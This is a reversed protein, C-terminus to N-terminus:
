LNSWREILYLLHFLSQAFIHFHYPFPAHTYTHTRSSQHSSPPFASWKRILMMQPSFLSCMTFMSFQWLSWCITPIESFLTVCNVSAKNTRFFVLSISYLSIAHEWFVSKSGVEFMEFKWRFNMWTSVALRHTVRECLCKYEDNKQSVKIRDSM